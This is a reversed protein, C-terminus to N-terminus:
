KLLMLKKTETFSSARLRYFYVGSPLKSANWQRTYNGTSMEESVIIAVERALIDFVKLSVFSKSPISFSITTSSNFPNPYNQYLEFQLPISKEKDPDGVISIAKYEFAGIDFRAQLPDFRAIYDIDEPPSCFWMGNVNVSDIGAGICPSKAELHFDGQSSNVFLPNSFFDSISDWMVFGNGNEKIGVRGSDIDSHIVNISSSNDFQYFYVEGPSNNWLISNILNIYSSQCYIGAGQGSTTNNVMTVNVFNCSSHYGSFAGGWLSATNGYILANEITLNSSFFISIGGKM